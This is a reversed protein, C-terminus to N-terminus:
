RPLRLSPVRVSSPCLAVYGCIRPLPAHFRRVVREVCMCAAFRAYLVLLSDPTRVGDCVNARVVWPRAFASGALFLLAWLSSCSLADGPCQRPLLLTGPAGCSPMNRQRPRVACSIASWFMPFSPSLVAARLKEKSNSM